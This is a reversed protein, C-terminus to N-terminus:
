VDSLKSTAGVGIRRREFRRWWALFRQFEQYSPPLHGMMLPGTLNHARVSM